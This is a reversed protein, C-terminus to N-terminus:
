GKREWLEAVRICAMVAPDMNQPKALWSLRGCTRVCCLFFERLSTKVSRKRKELLNTRHLIRGDKALIASQRPSRCDLYGWIFFFDAKANAKKLRRTEIACWFCNPIRSKLIGAESPM